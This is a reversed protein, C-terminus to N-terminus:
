RDYEQQLMRRKQIMNLRKGEEEKELEEREKKLLDEYVMQERDHEIKRQMERNRSAELNYVLVDHLINKRIRDLKRNSDEVNPEQPPLDM